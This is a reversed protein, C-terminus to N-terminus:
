DGQQVVRGGVTITPRKPREAAPAVSTPADPTPEEIKGAGKGAESDQTAALSQDAIDESDASTSEQFSGQTKGQPLSFPERETGAPTGPHAREEGTTLATKEQEHSSIVRLLTQAAQPSGAIARSVLQKAFLDLTTAPDENLIEWHSKSFVTEIAAFLRKQMSKEAGPMGSPNGSQGKQFRTHVPPKGRGVAYDKKTPM